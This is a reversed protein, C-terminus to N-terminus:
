KAGRAACVRNIYRLEEIAYDHCQPIEKMQELLKSAEDWMGYEVLLYAHRRCLFYYLEAMEDSDFQGTGDFKSLYQKVFDLSRPDGSNILANVYEIVYKPKDRGVILSLYYFARDYQELENFCFGIYYCTEDFLKGVKDRHTLVDTKLKGYARMLSLLADAFRNECLFIRAYVFDNGLGASCTMDDYIKPWEKLFAELEKGTESLWKCYYPNVGVGAFGAIGERVCKEEVSLEKGRAMKESASKEVKEYKKLKTEPSVMDFGLIFSKVNPVNRSNSSRFDDTSAFNPIMVSVRVYLTGDSFAGLTRLFMIISNDTEIWSKDDRGDIGGFVIHGPRYSIVLTVNQGTIPHFQGDEGTCLLMDIPKFALVESPENVLRSQVDRGFEGSSVVAMSGVCSTDENLIESLIYGVSVPSDESSRKVTTPQHRFKAENKLFSLWYMKGFDFVDELKKDRKPSKGFLKM